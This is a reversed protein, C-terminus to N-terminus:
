VFSKALQFTLKWTFSFTKMSCSAWSWLTQKHPTSHYKGTEKFNMNGESTVFQDWSIYWPHILATLLMNSVFLAEPFTTSAVGWYWKNRRTFIDRGQNFFWFFNKGLLIESVNWIENTFDEQNIYLFYNSFATEQM